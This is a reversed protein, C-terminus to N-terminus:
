YNGPDTHLGIKHIPTAKAQTWANPYVGCESAIIITQGIIISFPGVGAKIYTPLDWRTLLQQMRCKQSLKM